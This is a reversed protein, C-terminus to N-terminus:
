PREPSQARAQSAPSGRRVDNAFFFKGDMPRERRDYREVRHAPAIGSPIVVLGLGPLMVLCGVVVLRAAKRWLLPRPAPWEGPAMTRSLRWVREAEFVVVLMAMTFFGVTCTLVAYKLLLM